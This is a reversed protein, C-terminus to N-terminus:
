FFPAESKTLWSTETNIQGPLLLPSVTTISSHSESGSPSGGCKVGLRPKFQETRAETKPATKAETSTTKAETSTTKAETSTTKAETSTTKAETSTTKAETSTTKAETSTTKAETSTTKAETSTTKTEGDVLDKAINPLNPLSQSKVSAKTVTTNVVCIERTGPPALAREM